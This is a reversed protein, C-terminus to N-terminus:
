LSPVESKCCGDQALPPTLLAFPCVLLAGPAANLQPEAACASFAEIAGAPM